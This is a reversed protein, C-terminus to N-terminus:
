LCLTLYDRLVIRIDALHVRERLMHAPLIKLLAWEGFLTPQTDSMTRRRAARARTLKERRKGLSGKVRRLYSSPAHASAIRTNGTLSLSHPWPQSVTSKAASRHSLRANWGSRSERRSPPNRFRASSDPADGHLLTELSTFELRWFELNCLVCSTRVHGPASIATAWLRSGFAAIHIVFKM